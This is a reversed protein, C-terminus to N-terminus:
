EAGGHSTCGLILRKVTGPPALIAVHQAIMGGMSIGLVHFTHFGVHKALKLVDLAFDEITWQEQTLKTTTKNQKNNNSNTITQSQKNKKKKNNHCVHRIVCVCM